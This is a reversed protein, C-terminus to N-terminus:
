IVVNERSWALSPIIFKMRIQFEFKVFCAFHGCIYFIFLIAFSVYCYRIFVGVTPYFGFYYESFEFYSVQSFTLNYCPFIRGQQTVFNLKMSM